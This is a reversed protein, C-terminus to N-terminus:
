KTLDRQKKQELEKLSKMYSANDQEAREHNKARDSPYAETPNYHDLNTFIMQISPLGVQSPGGAWRTTIIQADKRTTLKKAFEFSEVPGKQSAPDLVMKRIKGDSGKVYVFPAVHYGWGDNQKKEMNNPWIDDGFFWAKGVAIGKAELREASTQARAFCGDWTFEWPLDKMAKIEDFAEQAEKESLIKGKPEKFQTKELREVAEPSAFTSGGINCYEAPIADRPIMRSALNMDGVADVVKVYDRNVLSDSIVKKHKEIASITKLLETDDCKEEIEQDRNKTFGKRSLVQYSFFDDKAEDPLVTPLYDQKTPLRTISGDKNITGYIWREFYSNKNQTNVPFLLVRDPEKSKGKPTNGLIKNGLAFGHPGQCVYYECVKDKKAQARACDFDGVRLNEAHVATAVSFLSWFVTGLM